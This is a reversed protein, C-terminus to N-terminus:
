RRPREGTRDDRKTRARSRPRRREAGPTDGDPESQDPGPICYRATEIGVYRRRLVGVLLRERVTRRGFRRQRDGWASTGAVSATTKVLGSFTFTMRRMQHSVSQASGRGIRFEASQRGVLGGALQYEGAGSGDVHREARSRGHITLRQLHGQRATSPRPFPSTGGSSSVAAPSTLFTQTQFTSMAGGHLEGDDGAPDPDDAGGTM